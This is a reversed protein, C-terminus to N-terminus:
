VGKIIALMERETVIYNQKFKFLRQLYFKLLEKEQQLIGAM